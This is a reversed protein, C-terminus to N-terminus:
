ETVTVELLMILRTEAALVWCAGAVREAENLSIGVVCCSM